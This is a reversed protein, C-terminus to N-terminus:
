CKIHLQYTREAGGFLDSGSHVVFEKVIQPAECQNKLALLAMRDRALQNDANIGLDKGNKITVLYDYEPSPSREVRFNESMPLGTVVGSNSTGTSACASLGASVVLSSLKIWDM